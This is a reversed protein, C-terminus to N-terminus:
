SANLPGGSIGDDSIIKFIECSAFFKQACPPYGLDDKILIRSDDCDLVIHVFIHNLAQEHAISLSAALKNIHWFAIIKSGKHSENRFVLFNFIKFSNWKERICFSCIIQIMKTDSFFISTKFFICLLTSNGIYM